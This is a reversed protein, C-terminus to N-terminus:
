STSCAPRSRRTRASATSSRTARPCTAATPWRRARRSSRLNACTPPSRSPRRSTCTRRRCRPSNSTSGPSTKTRRRVNGADRPTAHALRDEVHTAPADGALHQMTRRYLDTLVEAKWDNLVGPGVAALDAATLVFLMQLVEPSGVEVAFRVVLQEDSTDRRFALHSM